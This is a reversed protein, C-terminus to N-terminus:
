FSFISKYPLIGYYNNSWVYFSYAVAFLAISVAMVRQLFQDSVKSVLKIYIMNAKKDPFMKYIIDKLFAQDFCEILLPFSFAIYINLFYPFRDMVNIKTQYLTILLSLFSLHLYVSNKKDILVMRKHFLLMVLFIFIAIITSKWSMGKVYMQLSEGYGYHAYKPIIKTFLVFIQKAFLLPTLFVVSLIVISKKNYKVRHFLYALFMIAATYHFMMAIFIVIIYKWFEKDKLYNFGILTIAIAISQRIGSLSFYFLFSTVLLFSLAPYKSYKYIAGGILSWIVLSTLVVVWQFNQTFMCLVANLLAYGKEINYQLFDKIQLSSIELFINRYSGYDLGMGVRVASILFLQSSFLICLFKRKKEYNLSCLHGSCYSNTPCLGGFLAGFCVMSLINLSYIIM